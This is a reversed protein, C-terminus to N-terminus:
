GPRPVGRPSRASGTSQGALRLGNRGKWAAKSCSRFTITSASVRFCSSPQRAIGLMPSSTRAARDSQIPIAPARAWRRRAISRGSHWARRNRGSRLSENSNCGHCRRCASPGITGMCLSSSFLRPWPLAGGDVRPWSWGSAGSRSRWSRCARRRPPSNGGNRAMGRMAGYDSGRGQFDVTRVLGLPHLAADYFRRSRELDKVGLSVHDLM